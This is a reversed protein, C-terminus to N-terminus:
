DTLSALPIKVSVRTGDTLSIVDLSGNFAEVRRRVGNLGLGAHHGRKHAQPPATTRAGSDSVVVTLSNYEIYVAVRQGNGRAHQYANNLAEQVIRYLCVRLPAPCLPLNEIESKVTTGTRGEHQRVALRLTETTSLDSLEPLVLGTAIDRLETLTGNLLEDVDAVSPRGDDPAEPDNTELLEGLKLGLVTLVQIPGDHLDQGLQNLFRENSQISELRANDAEQRLKDNLLALAATQAVKEKLAVRHRRVTSAARKVLLFLVFMMPAAIAAVIAVSKIRIDRLEGALREGDNLVKGAAIIEKTGSRYLPAYVEIMPHQSVQDAIERIAATAQGLLAANMETPISKTGVRHKNGSSYALTGDRRWVEISKSRRGLRTEFIEDLKKVSDDSLKNATALEQVLPSLFLDLLSAGEEAATLTLSTQLANSVAYALLTMSCIITVAAALLFTPLLRTPRQLIDASALGIQWGPQSM